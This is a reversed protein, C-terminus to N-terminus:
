KFYLVHWEVREPGLKKPNSITTRVKNNQIVDVTLGNVANASLNDKLVGWAALVRKGFPGHTSQLQEQGNVIEDWTGHHVELDNLVKAITDANRQTADGNGQVNKDVQELKSDLNVVKSELSTIRSKLDNLIQCSRTASTGVHGGFVVLTLCILTLLSKTIDM